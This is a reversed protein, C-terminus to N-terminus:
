SLSGISIPVRDPVGVGSWVGMSLANTPCREICLGCRICSSEDLLLATGEAGGVEAAPVLSILDLPCVDSCLACLVCVHVDLLINAFCRLCRQAECRAQEESFGVEVERLGIRRDTSLSPVPLRDRRDYPDQLRHFQDLVVMRGPNDEEAGGGFARHISAAARRGDAIAEILSRPGHVADGGAWVGPISTALTDSDVEITGRRSATPGDPELASLDVAQGIALIVTDTSLVELDEQDFQPAFRGAEDFVSVVGITEVGVARGDEVLIRAPGRRHVFKIGELLAEHIEFEAAPMEHRAELSVVTVDTAGARVASRAVDVAETFSAEPVLEPAELTLSKQVEAYAAARLATRAADLAVNGGGIVVVRDGVDVQFGQNLNILFELARFVGDAQHGDIDLGRGLSAGFALFIADHRERLDALMVDTGIRSDLHVEVGLSVVADIEARLLRRDLRYEPIGLVMM